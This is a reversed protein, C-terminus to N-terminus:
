LGELVTGNSYWIVTPPPVGAVMCSFMVSEDEYTDMSELPALLYPVAASVYVILAM